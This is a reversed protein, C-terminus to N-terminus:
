SWCDPNSFHFSYIELSVCSDIACTKLGFENWSFTKSEVASILQHYIWRFFNGGKGGSSAVKEDTPALQTCSSAQSREWSCSSGTLGSREVEARGGGCTNKVAFVKYLPVPQLLKWPVVLSTAGPCARECRSPSCPVFREPWGPQWLRHQSSLRLHSQGAFSQSHMLVDKMDPVSINPHSLHLMTVGRRWSPM